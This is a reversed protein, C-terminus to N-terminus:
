SCDTLGIVGLLRRGNSSANFHQEAVRRGAQGIALARREDDLLYDLAAVIAPASGPEVLMANVRDTLFAEIDSVRSVLVPRGSALFEGLKFPFGREAFESKVRVVCPIDCESLLQFYEADSLFGAYRIRRAFPSASIRRQIEAMRGAVGLGTMVLELDSRRAAMDDFADILNGVGDKDGFSGAYLIRVPRHFGATSLTIRDLEVSVPVLQVPRTGRVARVVKDELYTSIVIVGDVFWALHRTIWQGSRKKLRSLLRTDGELQHFDEVIDVIIAYGMLAAGLLFVISEISPENYHYVINRAGKRRARALFRLGGYLYRVVALVLGLGSDIDHGITEYRVGRHEGALRANDRGPHSQRLLLIRATNGPESTLGDIFHQFRKTPALGEPYTLNGMFVANVGPVAM